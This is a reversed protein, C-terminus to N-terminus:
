SGGSSRVSVGDIQSEMETALDNTAGGVATLVGIGLAVLAATLVVWDITVAGDEHRLFKKIDHRM